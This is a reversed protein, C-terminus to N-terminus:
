LSFHVGDVVTDITTVLVGSASVVSADDGPGVLLRDSRAGLGERFSRILERETGTTTAARAATTEATAAV